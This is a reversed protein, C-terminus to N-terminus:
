KILTGKVDKGSVVLKINGEKEANIILSEIGDEALELLEKIKGAMGGTVDAQNENETLTLQSDKTVIDILQADPNTKPNDTFIGDVDSSIVVRDAKLKRAFHTILQDGSIIAFKIDDNLDLVADGYIVPVFGEMIYRKVITSDCISIRKNETMIFTSPKIGVAPIGKEQLKNVVIYNLLQVSAQTKCLGENKFKKEEETNIQDGIAYKKAHIHGYSGAGHVIMMDDNYYSLEEAIRDLNVEDITPESADKITLASGGLKLIMM